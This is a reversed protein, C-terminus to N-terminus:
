QKHLHRDHGPQSNEPCEKKPVEERQPTVKIKATM